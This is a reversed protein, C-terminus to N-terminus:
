FDDFINGSQNLITLTGETYHKSLCLSLRQWLVLLTCTDVQSSVHSITRQHIHVNHRWLRNWPHTIRDAGPSRCVSVTSQASRHSMRHTHTYLDTHRCTHLYMFVHTPIWGVQLCSGSACLHDSKTGWSIYAYETILQAYCCFRWRSDCYDFYELSIISLLIQQKEWPFCKNVM